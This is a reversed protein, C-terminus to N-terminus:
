SKKGRWRSRERREQPGNPMVVDLLGAYQRQQVIQGTSRMRAAQQTEAIKVPRWQSVDKLIESTVGGEGILAVVRDEAALRPAVYGLATQTSIASPIDTKTVVVVRPAVSLFAVTLYDRLGSGIDCLIHVNPEDIAVLATVVRSAAEASAALPFQRKTNGLVAESDGYWRTWEPWRVDHREADDVLSDFLPADQHAHFLGLDASDPDADVIRVPQGASLLAAAVQVLTTTVGQGHRAGWFATIM